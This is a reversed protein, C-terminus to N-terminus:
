RSETRENLFCAFCPLDDSEPEKCWAEGNPCTEERPRRDDSRAQRPAASVQRDDRFWDYIHMVCAQFTHRMEGPAFLGRRDSDPPEWTTEEAVGSDITDSGDARPLPFVTCSLPATERANSTCEHCAFMTWLHVRIRIEGALQAGCEECPLGSVVRTTGDGAPM